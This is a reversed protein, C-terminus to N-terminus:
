IVPLGAVVCFNM